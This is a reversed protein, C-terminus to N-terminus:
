RGMFRQMLMQKLAALPPAARPDRAAYEAEPGSMGAGVLANRSQEAEAQQQAAALIAGQRQMQSNSVSVGPRYQFSSPVPPPQQQAAAAAEGPSMGAGFFYDLSRSPM